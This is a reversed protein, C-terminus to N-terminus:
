EEIYEGDVSVSVMNPGQVGSGELVIEGTGIWFTDGQRRWTNSSGDPNTLIVSNSTLRYPIGDAGGRLGFEDNYIENATDGKFGMYVKGDRFLFAYQGDVGAGDKQVWVGDFSGSDDISPEDTSGGTLFGPLNESFLSIGGTRNAIVVVAIIGIIFLFVGLASVALAALYCGTKKEM